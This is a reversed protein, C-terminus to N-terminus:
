GIADADADGDGPADTGTPPQPPKATLWAYSFLLGPAGLAVVLGALVSGRPAGARTSLALGFLSAAAAVLLLLAFLSM